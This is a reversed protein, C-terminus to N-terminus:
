TQEMVSLVIDVAADTSSAASLVDGAELVIKGDLAALASSAPIPVDKVLYTTGVQLSCTRQQTDINALNAGIVITTTAVPVTYITTGAITSQGIFRKFTNAM